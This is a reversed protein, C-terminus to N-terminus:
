TTTAEKTPTTTINIAVTTASDIDVPGGSASISGSLFLDNWRQTESGLNFSDSANPILDSTLDATIEISDTNADGLTLNGGIFADGTVHLKSGSITSGSVDAGGFDFGDETAALTQIVSDNAPNVFNLSSTSVFIEKWPRAATGLDHSEKADPILSGSILGFSGTSFNGQAWRKDPKGLKGENTIRPVINKTAM